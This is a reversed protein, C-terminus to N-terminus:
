KVSDRAFPQRQAGDAIRGTNPDVIEFNLNRYEISGDKKSPIYKRGFLYCDNGYYIGIPHPKEHGRYLVAAQMKGGVFTDNTNEIAEYSCRFAGRSTEAENFARANSNFELWKEYFDNEGSGDRSIVQSQKGLPVCSEVVCDMTIVFRYLYLLVGVKTGYIIISDCKLSKAQKFFYEKISSIKEEISYGSLNM